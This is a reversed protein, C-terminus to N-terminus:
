GKKSSPGGDLFSSFSKGRLLVRGIGLKIGANASFNSLLLSLAL